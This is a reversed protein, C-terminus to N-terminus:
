FEPHFVWGTSGCTAALPANQQNPWNVPPNVVKLLGFDFRPVWDDPINKKPGM